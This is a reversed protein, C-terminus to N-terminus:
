PFLAVQTGASSATLRQKFRVFLDGAGGVRDTTGGARTRVEEYPAINLQLDASDTLGLKLTPSTYLITDTRVGGQDDRTWNILDSELQIKGAPVTCANNGKGPRDTCIEDDGGGGAGAACAPTCAVALAAALATLKLRM